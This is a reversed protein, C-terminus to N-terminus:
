ATLTETVLTTVQEVDPISGTEEYKQYMEQMHCQRNLFKNREWLFENDTELDVLRM